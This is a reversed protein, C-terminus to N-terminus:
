SRGKPDRFPALAADHAEIEKELSRAVEIFHRLTAVMKEESCGARRAYIEFAQCLCAAADADDIGLEQIILVTHAALAVYAEDRTLESM